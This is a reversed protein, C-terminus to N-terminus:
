YSCLCVEHYLDDFALVRGIYGIIELACGSVMAITFGLWRKGVIGQALFALTSIGFLVTFAINAGYSPRYGWYSYELGCTEYTCTDRWDAGPM